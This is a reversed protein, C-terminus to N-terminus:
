RSRRTKKPPQELGELPVFTTTGRHPPACGHCTGCGGEGRRARLFARVLWLFAAAVIALATVQQWDM